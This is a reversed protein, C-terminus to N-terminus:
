FGKLVVSYVKEIDKAITKTLYKKVLMRGGGGLKERLKKDKILLELKERWGGLNSPSVLFGTKDNVIDKIGGVDSAVIPKGAAMAEIAIRGFPEQWISPFVIIDSASYAKPIEKYPLYGVLKIQSELDNKKVEVDIQKRLPGKGIVLFTVEKHNKLIPVMVKLAELIGKNQTLPGVFAVTIKGLDWRKKLSAIAKKSIESFLDTDVPNPVIVTGKNIGCLRLKENVASSLAIKIDAKKLIKRSMRIDLLKYSDFPLRLPSVCKVLSKFDCTECEGVGSLCSSKPCAFWYDRFHCVVPINHKKAVIIAAVTTLRDQSHILDIKEKKIIKGLFNALYARQIQFVPITKYKKFIYTKVGYNGTSAIVVRHGSRELEKALLETSIEAGGTKPPSYITFLINM